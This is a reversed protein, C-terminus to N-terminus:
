QGSGKYPLLYLAVQREGHPLQISIQLNKFSYSVEFEDSRVYLMKVGDM